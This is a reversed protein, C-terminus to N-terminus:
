RRPCARPSLAPLRVARGPRAAGEGRLPDGALRGAARALGVPREAQWACSASPRRAGAADRACLGHRRDGPAARRGARLLRAFERRPRPMSSAASTTAPRPGPIPSCCSSASSAATRCPACCCAPMTSWSACTPRAGAREALALLRAVGAIFPECGILGVEPHAAAQAALHEGGGFGIELWLRPAPRRVASAPDLRGSQRCRAAAAEPLREALLRRRGPRLRHGQRRGYISANCAGAAPGGAAGRESPARAARRGSRDAGLLLRRGGRARPRFPRLGLHARLDAAVARSARPHRAAVPGDARAARREPAGPRGAGTGQM